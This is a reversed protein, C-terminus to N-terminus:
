SVVRERHLCPNSERQPRWNGHRDIGPATGGTQIFLNMFAPATEKRARDRLLECFLRPVGIIKGGAQESRRLAVEHAAVSTGGVADAVADIYPFTPRAETWLATTIPKEYDAKGAAQRFEVDAGLNISARDTTPVGELIKRIQLIPLKNLGAKM